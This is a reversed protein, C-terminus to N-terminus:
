STSNELKFAAVIRQLLDRVMTWVCCAKRHVNKRITISRRNFTRRAKEEQASLQNQTRYGRVIKLMVGSVEIADFSAGYMSIDVTIDCMSIPYKM